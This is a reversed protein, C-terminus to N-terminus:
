RWGRADKAVPINWIYQFNLQQPVNGPTNGYNNKRNYQDQPPSQTCCNSFNSAGSDTGIAHSWTYAINLFLDHGVPHRVGIELADWNLTMQSVSSMIPGYGQYPAYVYPFVSPNNINPNFDYPPD